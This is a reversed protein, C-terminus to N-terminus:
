GESGERQKAQDDDHDDDGDGRHDHEDAGPEHEQNRHLFQQLVGAADLARLVQLKHEAPDIPLATEPEATDAAPQDAETWLETRLKHLRPLDAPSIRVKGERLQNAYTLYSADILKEVDLLKETRQDRLRAAAAAAACRDLERAREKWHELRGHREVTRVSVGFEDAVLQYGRQDPRLGAYFLFAQQWDILPRGHDSGPKREAM